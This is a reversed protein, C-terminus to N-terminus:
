KKRRKGAGAIGVLGMALLTMTAPEPVIEQGTGGDLSELTFIADNFDRDGGAVGREGRIDEWGYVTLPNGNTNPVFTTRDDRYVGTSGFNYLYSTNSNLAAISYLWFGSGDPTVDAIGNTEVYLGLIWPSTFGFTSPGQQQGYFTNSACGAVKCFLLTSDSATTGDWDFAWMSHWYSAGGSELYTVSYDNSTGIFDPGGTLGTQASAGVPALLLLMILLKKFM